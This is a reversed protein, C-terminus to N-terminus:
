KWWPTKLESINGARRCKGCRRPRAKTFDGITRWTDCGHCFKVGRTMVVRPTNSRANSDIRGTRKGRRLDKEVKDGGGPRRGRNVRLIADRRTRRKGRQRPRRKNTKKNGKRDELPGKAVVEPPDHPTPIDGGPDLTTTAVTAPRTDAGQLATHIGSTTELRPVGPRPLVKERPPAPTELRHAQRPCLGPPTYFRDHRALSLTKFKPWTQKQGDPTILVALKGPARVRIYGQRQLDVLHAHATIPPMMLTSAIVTTKPYSDYRNGFDVLYELVARLQKSLTM